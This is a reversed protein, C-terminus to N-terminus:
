RKVEQLYIWWRNSIGGGIAASNAVNYSYAQITYSVSSGAVGVTPDQAVYTNWGGADGPDINFYGASHPTGSGKYTNMTDPYSTGGSHVKKIRFGVGSDGSNDHYYYVFNSYLLISSNNYLPTITTTIVTDLWSGNSLATETIGSASPTTQITHGVPFVVGSSLTGATTTGLNNATGALTTSGTTGVTLAADGGEDQLVLSGGSTPKIILNAM